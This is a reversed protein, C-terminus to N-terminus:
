QNCLQEGADYILKMKQYQTMFDADAVESKLLVEVHQDAQTCDFRCVGKYAHELVPGPYLPPCRLLEGWDACTASALDGYYINGQYEYNLVTGSFTASKSFEAMKRNEPVPFLLGEPIGTEMEFIGSDPILPITVCHLTIEDVAFPWDPGFEGATIERTEPEYWSPWDSNLVDWVSLKPVQQSFAAPAALILIPLLYRMFGKIEFETGVIIVHHRNM